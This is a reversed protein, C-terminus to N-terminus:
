KGIGIKGIEDGAGKFMDNIMKPITGAGDNFLVDRFLYTVGGIIIAAIIVAGIMFYSRDTNAELM